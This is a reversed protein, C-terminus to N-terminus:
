QKNLNYYYKGLGNKAANRLAENGKSGVAFLTTGNGPSEGLTGDPRIFKIKGKVFLVSDSHQSFHQWWPASTRDPMLAIGNGHSLFKRIWTEKTKQHGFPPNMWVFGFWGTALGDVDKDYFRRAPVSCHTRDKPSAVDLNFEVGLAEFIYEPTYWENSKVPAEHSM